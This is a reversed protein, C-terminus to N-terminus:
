ATTQHKKDSRSEHCEDEFFLTWDFDLVKAIRKAVHVSPDRNDQEIMAYTTRAIGALSAVEEQKLGKESRKKALWVRM